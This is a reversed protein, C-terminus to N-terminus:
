KNTLLSKLIMTKTTLLKKNKDDLNNDKNLLM